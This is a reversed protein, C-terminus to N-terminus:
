DREEIQDFENEREDEFTPLNQHYNYGDKSKRNNMQEKFSKSASKITNSAYNMGTTFGKVQGNGPSKSLEELNEENQTGLNKLNRYKGQMNGNMPTMQQSHILTGRKSPSAMSNGYSHSVGSVPRPVFNRLGSM